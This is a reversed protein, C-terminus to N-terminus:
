DVHRVKQSYRYRGSAVLHQIAVFSATRESGERESSM